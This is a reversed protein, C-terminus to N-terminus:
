DHLWDLVCRPNSKLHLVSTRMQIFLCAALRGGVACAPLTYAQVPKGCAGQKLVSLV